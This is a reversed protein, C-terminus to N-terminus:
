NLKLTRFSVDITIEMEDLKQVATKGEATARFLHPTMSLLNMVEQNSNLNIRYMLKKQSTLKFGNNLANEINPLGSKKVEKYIIERLEILHDEATDILIIKGDPKLIRKFEEYFPFGFQCLIIDVSNQKIPLQKNSAVIWSIEKNRKAAAIVAEKSIDLGLLFLNNNQIKSHIYDLYYGEGCGADVIFNTNNNLNSKLISELEEAIPLYKDSNLFERRATIMERSDGPHKSKKFQVPLLNVYGQKAIDYCHNNGCKLTSNILEIQLKDIPCILNKFKNSDNM